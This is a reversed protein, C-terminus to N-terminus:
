EKVEIDIKEIRKFISKLLGKTKNNNWYEKSLLLTDFEDSTKLFEFGFSKNFKLANSNKIHVQSFLKDLHLSNFVMDIIKYSVLSPILPNLNKMFYVGWTSEKKEKDIETISIGGVIKEESFVAFYINKEDEKLNQIFCLHNELSIQNINKMKLRIYESNRIELLKENEDKTLYILNKLILKM